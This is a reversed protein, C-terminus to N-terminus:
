QLLKAKQAQFEEETLIGQDRLAALEKLQAITDSNMSPVHPRAPRTERRADTGPGRGRRIYDGIYNFIREPMKMQDWAGIAATVALPWLIVFMGIAGVVAKDVWKGAGIEVCLDEDELNLVINLATSMGLANRWSGRKEIQILTSGDEIPLTQVNFDDRELWDMLFDALQPLNLRPASYYQVRNGSSSPARRRRRRHTGRRNRSRSPEEVPLVELITDPAPAAVLPTPVMLRMKCVPCSATKGAASNPANLKAGCLCTVSISMPPGRIPGYDVSRLVRLFSPILGLTRALKIMSRLATLRRNITIAALDREMLHTRYALALANAEGLGRAMIMGAAQDLTSVQVFAQFDELDARYAKITEQKRGALFAALLRAAQSTPDIAKPSLPVPAYFEEDSKKTRSRPAKIM